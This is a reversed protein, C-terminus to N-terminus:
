ITLWPIIGKQRPCGDKTCPVPSHTLNKQLTFRLDVIFVIGVFCAVYRKRESRYHQRLQESFQTKSIAKVHLDAIESASDAAKLWLTFDKKCLIAAVHYSGYAKEALKLQKALIPDLEELKDDVAKEGTDTDPTLAARQPPEATLTSQSSDQEQQQRRTEQLWDEYVMGLSSYVQPASPADRAVQTLRAIAEKRKGRAHAGIADGHQQALKYSQFNRMKYMRRSKAIRSNNIGKRNSRRNSGKSPTEMSKNEVKQEEGEDEDNDSLRGEEDDPEHDEIVAEEDVDSARDGETGDEIRFAVKKGVKKSASKMDDEDITSEGADNTVDLEPQDKENEVPQQTMDEAHKGCRKTQKKSRKNEQQPFIASGEVVHDQYAARSGRLRRRNNTEDHKENDDALIALDDEDEKELLKRKQYRATKQKRPLKRKYQGNKKGYGVIEMEKHLTEFVQPTSKGQPKARPSTRSPSANTASKSSAAAKGNMRTSRRKAM